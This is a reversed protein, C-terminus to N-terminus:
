ELMRMPIWEKTQLSKTILGAIHAATLALLVRSTYYHIDELWIEGWFRDLGMMFGTIALVIISIWMTIYVYKALISTPIVGRHKKDWYPKTLRGLVSLFAVYGIWEHITDGEETIFLNLLIAIAFVWHLIKTRGDYQSSDAQQKKM